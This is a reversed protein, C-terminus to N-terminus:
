EPLRQGKTELAFPIILIGILFAFSTLAVPTGITGARLVAGALVFNVGAGIIRGISTSFAFATARVNTGYQEPLWLSFVAFNGGFFGLVFLTAIFPVLANDLYFAWGFSTAIACFMGLFYFALTRKRGFREALLPVCLCGIITGISLIATGISATRVADVQAMGAKKALQIIASPEYVAGAWLGIIAVTLLTANVLTRKRYTPNFIELLPRHKKVDGEHKKWREPEKVRLLVAIAVIVPTLGCLFMARWGFQAGVTYNLAAALFFGAYYGTQLYGAGMKRRDEPWAEAVYTGALAWEGGIGIGALFRFTGLLWVNPALAALGTFIAYMFITGALVRTRGFRDALPGWIFSIGWGVLFLAFLISGAFGVNGPTAEIGSKPLLETLAPNLVLAYIFSDMGDLTWGAWAAWFGIIQSRNLPTRMAAATVSNQM